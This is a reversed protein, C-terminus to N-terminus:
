PRDGALSRLREDYRNLEAARALHERALEPEGWYGSEYFALQEWTLYNDPQLEVARILTVRAESGKGLRQQAGALIFLAEISLPNYETAKRALHLSEVGLGDEAHELSRSGLHLSYWPLFASVSALSAVTLLTYRLWKEVM